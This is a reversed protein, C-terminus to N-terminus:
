ELVVRWIKRRQSDKPTLMVNNVTDQVLIVSEKDCGNELTLGGSQVEVISERYYARQFRLVASKGGAGGEEDYGGQLTLFGCVERDIFVNFVIRFVKLIKSCSYVPPVRGEKM